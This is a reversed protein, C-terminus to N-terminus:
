HIELLHSQPSQIDQMVVSLTKVHFENIYQALVFGHRETNCPLTLVDPLITHVPGTKQEAAGELQRAFGVNGPLQFRKDQPGFPGMTEDPWVTRPGSNWLLM